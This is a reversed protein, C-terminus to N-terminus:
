RSRRAWASTGLASRASVRFGDAALLRLKRSTARGKLFNVMPKPDTCALWETETM